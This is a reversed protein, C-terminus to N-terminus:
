VKISLPFQPYKHKEALQLFQKSFRVSTHGCKIKNVVAAIKNKAQIETLSDQITFLTSDFYFDLSDKPTHWYLSPHNAELNKKLLVIDEKVAAAAYKQNFQYNRNKTAVCSCLLTFLLFYFTIKSNM